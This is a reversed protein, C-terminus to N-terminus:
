EGSKNLSGLSINGRGQWNRTFKKNTLSSYWLSNILQKVREGVSPQFICLGECFISGDSDCCSSSPVWLSLANVFTHASWKVRRGDVKRGVSQMGSAPGLLLGSPLLTVVSTAQYTWSRLAYFIVSFPSPHIWLSLSVCCPISVENERIWPYM